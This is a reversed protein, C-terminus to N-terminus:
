ICKLLPYNEDKLNHWNDWIRRYAAVADPNATFSSSVHNFTKATELIDPYVGIANGAIIASGLLSCEDEHMVEYTVNLVDAKIQNWMGNRTGGGAGRVTTFPAMGLLKQMGNAYEKYEFAVAELIARFMHDRGHAWQLGSFAGGVNLGKCIGSIYPYFALGDSGPPIASAGDTLEGYLSDDKLVNEVFWKVSGGGTTFCFAYWYGKIPSRLTRILGSPDPRWYDSCVTFMSATGATDGVQGPSLIGSAISAAPFDGAGAVVPIGSPVGIERAYDATLAGVIRTPEVVEALKTRDIGVAYCIEDDWNDADNDILGSYGTSTNEYYAQDGTLGALKGGVYNATLVVKYTKKYIDPRNNKWWLIKPGITIIANNGGKALIRDGCISNMEAAFPLFRNDMWTDYPSVANFDADVFIQGAQQGDTVIAGISGTDVGAKAVCEKIGGVCAQLIEDADYEIADPTPHYWRLPMTVIALIKREILDFLMSKVGSGGIDSALIYTSKM